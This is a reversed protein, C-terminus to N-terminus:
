PAPRAGAARPAGALFLTYRGATDAEQWGIARLKEATQPRATIAAAYRRHRLEDALALPPLNLLPLNGTQPADIAAPDAIIWPNRDWAVRAPHGSIVPLAAYEYLVVELLVAGSGPISGAELMARLSLAAAETDPDHSPPPDGLAASELGLQALILFPVLRDRGLAWLHQLQLAAGVALLTAPLLWHRPTNHLGAFGAIQALAMLASFAVAVQLLRAGGPSRAAAGSLGIAGLGLLLHATDALDLLPQILSPQEEQSRIADRAASAFAFPAHEWQFNAILWGAPFVWLLAAWLRWRAPRDQWLGATGILALAWLEYRCMGALGAAAAMGALRWRVSGAPEPGAPEPGAPEPLMARVAWLGLAVAPPEALGSCGLWIQWHLTGALIVALAASIPTAGARAAIGPVAALGLMSWGINVWSPLRAPDDWLRLLLGDVWFPLPPWLQDLRWDGGAMRAAILTRSFDDSSLAFAATGRSSLFAAQAILCLLWAAAVPPSVRLLASPQVGRLM